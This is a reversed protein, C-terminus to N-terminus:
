SVAQELQRMTSSFKANWPLDIYEEREDILNAQNLDLSEIQKELYKGTIPLEFLQIKCTFVDDITPIDTTDIENTLNSNLLKMENEYEKILNELGRIIQQNDDGANLKQKEEQIFYNIYEIVDNNTPNISNKRIFLALKTCIHRIIEEEQKLAAIREDIRSIIRESYRFSARENIEFYSLKKKFEYTVHM